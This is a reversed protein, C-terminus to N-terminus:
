APPSELIRRHYSIQGLHYSLHTTLHVLFYETSTKEKFVLLPYTESLKAATLTSLSADVIKITAEIEQILETLPVEKRSFELTRKRVYGTGGLVGGIFHNLNGILHLCLNGASNNVQQPTEWLLSERQYALLEKQLRHLDRKFILQLTEVLM